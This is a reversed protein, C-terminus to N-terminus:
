DEECKKIAEEATMDSFLIGAIGASYRELTSATFIISLEIIDDSPAKNSCYYPFKFCIEGDRDDFEFNGLVLGYNAKHLFSGMERMIKADKINADIGSYKAYIVFYKERVRITYSAHSLKGNISLSFKFLGKEEDFSFNWDDNVLYSNIANAIAPSYSIAM